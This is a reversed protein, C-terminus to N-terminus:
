IMFYFYKKLNSCNAVLCYGQFMEMACPDFYKHKPLVQIPQALFIFISQCCYRTETLSLVCILMRLGFYFRALRGVLRYAYTEEKLARWGM